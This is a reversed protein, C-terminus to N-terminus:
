AVAAGLWPIENPDGSLSVGRPNWGPEAPLGQGLLDGILRAAGPGVVRISRLALGNGLLLRTRELDEGLWRAEGGGGDRLRTRFAVIGERARLSWTLAADGLVLSCTGAKPTRGELGLVAAIPTLDIREKAVGAKALLAEYSEVIRRRIAVGLFRSGPVKVTDVLAEEEPYPLCRLLRYRAMSRPDIGKEDRKLLVVRAAGAPLLVRVGGRPLTVSGTVARVAELVEEARALNPAMASVNLAGPSLAATTVSQVSGGAVLGGWVASADFALIFGKPGFGLAVLRM